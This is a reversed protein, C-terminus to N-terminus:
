KTIILIKLISVILKPLTEELNDECKQESWGFVDELFTTQSM